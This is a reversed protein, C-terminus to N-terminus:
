DESDQKETPPAPNRGRDAHAREKRLQPMYPYGEAELWNLHRRWEGANAFKYAILLDKPKAWATM